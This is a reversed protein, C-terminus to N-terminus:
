DEVYVRKVRPSIQCIIEYSITDVQDALSTLPLNHGFIEVTDGPRIANVHTVDVMCVDMCINGVYPLLSGNYYVTGGSSSLGRPLGDAYGIGIIAVRQDTDAIYSRGYSVSGGAKVEKIQLVQAKLSLVPKIDDSLIGTDDIGYLGLGIRVGDLQYQPHRLIGATNLIHRMPKYGIAESLAAYTTLYRDYQQDTYTDHEPIESSVLHSFISRVKLLPSEDLLAVIQDLQHHELGLRHMGTEIKLHLNLTKNHRKSARALLNLQDLSYVEPQLDYDWLLDVADYDSFNFLMIPLSIGQERLERGEDLVAVALTDIPLRSLYRGIQTGGSGYASAKIVAFIKTDTDLRQTYLRLNHSISPLHVELTTTRTQYSLAESIKELKYQRKGKVLIATNSLNREKIDEIVSATDQGAQVKILDTIQYDHLLDTLLNSDDPESTIVLKNLDPYLGQMYDLAYRFAHLDSTYSDNIIVNGNYGQIVQLRMPLADLHATESQISQVPVKLHLAVTIVHMLNELEIPSVGDLSIQNTQGEYNYDVETISQSGQHYNINITSEPHIGWSLLKQNNLKSQNIAAEISNHIVEHDRCYILVETDKFLRLKEEIKGQTSEFNEGHADGINTFIGITPKLMQQLKAMEGPQSIGAEFLGLTYKEDIPILSQTLGIQSNYSKPTKILSYHPELVASLWEKVVTKGNSGTIGIIPFTVQSRRWAAIAQYAALTDDVVIFLCKSTPLYNAILSSKSQSILCCTAGADVADSVYGHGDRQGTSLPVFLTQKGDLISRSDYTIETVYQESVQQSCHGQTVRIIDAVSLYM